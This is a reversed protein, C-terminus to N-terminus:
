RIIKADTTSKEYGPAGTYIDLDDGADPRPTTGWKVHGDNYFVCQGTKEHNNSNNAPTGENAKSVDKPPKDAIIACTADATHNKTPDWGFSCESEKLVLDKLAANKYNTPFHEPIRDGSAPCIFVINTTLYGQKLLAAFASRAPEPSLTGDKAVAPVENGAADVLPMFADDHDGAYQIMALGIQRHNQMCVAIMRKQRAARIAYGFLFGLLVVMVVVMVILEILTFGRRTTM